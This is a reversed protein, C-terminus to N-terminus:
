HFTKSIKRKFSRMFDRFTNEPEVKTTEKPRQVEAEVLDAFEVPSCTDRYYYLKDEIAESLLADYSANTQVSIRLMNKSVSGISQSMKFKM